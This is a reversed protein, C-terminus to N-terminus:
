VAHYLRYPEDKIAAFSRFVIPERDTRVIWDGSSRSSVTASLLQDRTPKELGERIAFLAVPGRLLAVVSPNEPEISELRLPMDMEIEVRDGNTWTRQVAFFKGPAVDGDAKRGNVAVRTKAGAWRPIRVNLAFTEPNAAALELQVTQATPYETTQTLKFQTTGQTWTVRSPIFLNVYLGDRGKFYTSIHYDATLQPFTGSCCPWKDRYWVKEAGANAYDSYYFSTGDPEILRAGAITNYLIREMSDGYRSDGTARLLYRTIKFHGYSGCPTEFSAHTSDLSATLGGRGPEVFAEDPGWGGTAYSQDEVMRLGNKAARLYKEDGLVLYGEIASSLANVHSYAHEFPLVNADRSLPDFYDQELYRAGLERYRPNGGSQYARFLNEPLTYTEDWTFAISTYGRSRQEYRNLAHDPLYPLVAETARMHVALADPDGAFEHADILGCSTKDYTYAPLRYGAYFKGSASVTEGFGRVLRHVKEQTPKSGSVAYARALGSLYQGFSHGPIFGHFSHAPNFDDSNDYWGGMDPGPAPLGERQRFPKLLADEDLGLFLQHNHDFQERFIGDLLEVQAYSLQALPLSVALQPSGLSRSAAGAARSSSPGSLARAANAGVAPSVLTTGLAAGSVKLFQRRSTRKM